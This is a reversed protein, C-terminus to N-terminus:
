ADGASSAPPPLVAPWPFAFGYRYVSHRTYGVPTVNLLQGFANETAPLGTPHHMTSGESVMTVVSQRLSVGPVAMWGGRPSLDWSAGTAFVGSQMRDPVGLEDPTPCYPAVTVFGDPADPVPLDLVTGTPDLLDFQGHGIAREGGIGADGLAPLIREITERWGPRRWIVMFYLHVGQVFQVRAAHFIQSASTIRDVTVRPVRGARGGIWWPEARRDTTKWLDGGLRDREAVSIWVDGSQGAAVQANEHAPPNVAEGRVARGFLDWSYYRVKKGQKRATDDTPRPAEPSRPAGVMPRPLLRVDGIAPYVSSILFPPNAPEGKFEGLMEVLRAEGEAELVAHCIASFLSDAHFVVSATEVGVGREGFHMPGRPKLHYATVKMTPM